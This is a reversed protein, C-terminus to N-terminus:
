LGSHLFLVNYRLTSASLAKISALVIAETSDDRNRQGHVRSWLIPPEINTIPERKVSIVVGVM